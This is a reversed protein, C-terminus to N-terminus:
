VAAPRQRRREDRRGLDRFAATATQNTNHSSVAFGFYLTTPLSLTATGLQTWNQGDFGAYGTFVNGARKLRLWTNPYNVPFSGSLTTAANTISRAQFYCGSISPTAMVSASRAGATLDERAVLGAESWADALTLLDM